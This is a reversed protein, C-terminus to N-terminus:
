ATPLVRDGVLVLRELGFAERLQSVQPLLTKADATNGAYVSIAV